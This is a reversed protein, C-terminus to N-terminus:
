GGKAAVVATLAARILPAVEALNIRIFEGAFSGGVQSTLHPSTVSAPAPLCPLCAPDAPPPRAQETTFSGRDLTTM